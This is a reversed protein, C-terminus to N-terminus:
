IRQRIKAVIEPNATRNFNAAIALLRDLDPYNKVGGMNNAITYIEASKEATHILGFSEDLNRGSAFIGHHEWVVMRHTKMAEATAQGIGYTGAMMWPLLYVGEPFVVICEVHHTWLIETLRDTTLCEHYTLAILHPTHTHIVSHEVGNSAAKRVEHTMLHAFLESTPKSDGEYGWCIRYNEGRSDLEIVGVNKAPFLSINRLFRGTGSVLFYDGGLGPVEGGLSMWDSLPKLKKVEDIFETKLRLSINGGNAETWGKMHMDYSTKMIEQVFAPYNVNKSNDIM